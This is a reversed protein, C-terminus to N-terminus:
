SSSSHCPCLPVFQSLVVSAPAGLIKQVLSASLFDTPPGQRRLYPEALIDSWHTKVIHIHIKNHMVRPVRPAADILDPHHTRPCAHLIHPFVLYEFLHRFVQPDHRNSRSGKSRNDSRRNTRSLSRSRRIPFSDWFPHVRVQNSMNTGGHASKTDGQKSM